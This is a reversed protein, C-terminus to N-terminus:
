QRFGRRSGSRRAGVRAVDAPADAADGVEPRRGEVQGDVQTPREHLLQRGNHAGSGAAESNDSANREVTAKNGAIEVDPVIM